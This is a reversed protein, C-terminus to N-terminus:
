KILIKKILNSILKFWLGTKFNVILIINTINTNTKNYNCEVGSLAEKM